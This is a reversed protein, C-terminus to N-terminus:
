HRGPGAGRTTPSRFLGRARRRRLLEVLLAGPGRTVVKADGAAVYSSELYPLNAAQAPVGSLDLAGGLHLQRPAVWLRAARPAPEGTPPFTFLDGAAVSFYLVTGAQRAVEGPLSSLYQLFKGLSGGEEEDPGDGDGLKWVVSSPQTRTLAILHM